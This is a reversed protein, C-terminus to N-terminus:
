GIESMYKELDEIGLSWQTLAIPQVFSKLIESVPQNDFVLQEIERSLKNLEELAPPRLWASSLVYTADFDKKALQFGEKDAALQSAAYRAAASRLVWTRTLVAVHADVRPGLLREMFRSRLEDQHCREQSALELRLRKLNERSQLWAGALGATATLIGGTAGSLLVTLLQDM